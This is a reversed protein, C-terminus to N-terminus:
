ELWWKRRGLYCYIHLGGCAIGDPVGRRLVNICDGPCFSECAYSVGKMFEPCYIISTAYMWNRLPDLVIRFTHRIFKRHDWLPFSSRAALFDPQPGILASFTWCTLLTRMTADAAYVPLPSGLLTNYRRVDDLGFIHDAHGHTFVVAHILDVKNAVAQLRLEPTTDVLVSKNNYSVLISCRTRQDRKDSSSCVPCHCGIMPVGASTGSGLVIIRLAPTEKM